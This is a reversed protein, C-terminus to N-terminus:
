YSIHPTQLGCRSLEVGPQNRPNGNFLKVSFAGGFKNFEFPFKWKKASEKTIFSRM